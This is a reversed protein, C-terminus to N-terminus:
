NDLSEPVTRGNLGNADVVLMLAGHTFNDFNSIFFEGHANTFDTVIFVYGSFSTTGTPFLSHLFTVFQGGPQLKGDNDLGGFNPHATSVFPAITSLDSPFFYVTFKGAQPIASQFGMAATGPDKTTNSLALGTQYQGDAGLDIAYPILLTTKLVGSVTVFTAATTECGELYQPFVSATTQGAIIPALAASITITAPPLPFQTTVVQVTPHIVLSDTAAPNSAASMVYYVFQSSTSASLVVPTGISAGASTATTFIGETAPFTVTIGAPIPGVKLRILTQQTRTADPFTASTGFATIFNESITVTTTGSNTVTGAGADVTISAPAVVPTKLGPVIGKVLAIAQTEGITLTNGSSVATASVVDGITPCPSGAVNVRVNSLTITYPAILGAPVTIVVLGNSGDNTATVTPQTGVTGGTGAIANVAVSTLNAIPLNYRLTITGAVSPETGAVTTFVIKGTPEALGCCAVRDLTEQSVTFAAGPVQAFAAVSLAFFMVAAILINKKM